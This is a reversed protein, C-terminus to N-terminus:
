KKKSSKKRSSAGRKHGVHIGFIPLIAGTLLLTFATLLIALGFIILTNGLHNMLAPNIIMVLSLIVMLLGSFLKLIQGHEEQMRASKMTVVCIGFIILEDLQYLIMYVILLIIFTTQSANNAVLLNSWVVPFAATCSFEVLSVGASLVITAGIMAWFNDSHNMVNRIKQFLGPKQKDDITLSIGEKFFFYDKLNIFGLTLTLVAVAVQIWKMYSIYNLITFVGAIFLVYVLATVTLFVVGIIMTKRRSNTHVIMALLMTLVWLSCPNVGDVLAIIITSVLLSQHSLDIEGLLPIKITRTPAVEPPVLETKGDVIDQADVVGNEFGATIADEMEQQKQENFGVWQLNGIITVPVGAPEFNFARAFQKLIEVNESHQWIEFDNIILQDGYKEQIKELFVEEQACHPCGEGWFFYVKVLYSSATHDGAAPLASFLCFLIFIVFLSITRKKM